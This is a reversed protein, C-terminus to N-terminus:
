YCINKQTTVSIAGSRLITMHCKETISFFKIMQKSFNIINKCRTFIFYFLKFDKLIPADNIGIIMKVTSHPITPITNGNTAGLPGLRPYTKQRQISWYYKAFLQLFKIVANYM